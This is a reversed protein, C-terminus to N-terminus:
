VKLYQQLSEGSVKELQAVLGQVAGEVAADPDELLEAIFPLAEPLLVLYEEQLSAVLRSLLGLALLKGRVGGKRTAVLVSHHVPKWSLDSGTSLAGALLAGVAAMGAVDTVSDPLPGGIAAVAAEGAEGLAAVPGGHVDLEADACQQSLLSLLSHTSPSSADGAPGELLQDVLPQLVRELQEQKQQQESGSNHLFLLHLAQVSRVRALWVALQLASDRSSGAEGGGAAAASKRRKKKPPRVGAAAAAAGTLQALLLDLICKYYPAFVSRLRHSLAVVATLLAVTRGLGGDGGAAAAADEGAAAASQAAAVAAGLSSAAWDLLRLFLPKFRSESLKMTLAVLARAAASEVEHVGAPGLAAVGEGAAAPVDGSSSSAEMWRRRTDLAKLLLGFVGEYYVAALKTELGTVLDVVMGLLVAAPQHAVEAPAAPTAGEAAALAADSLSLGLAHEWQAALPELLLRAPVASPLAVRLRAATDAAGATSCGLVAPHVLLQVLRPLYPSLFAGLGRVLSELAALASALELAAQGTAADGAEEDDSGEQQQQQVSAAALQQCAAEAAALVAAAVTPLQSILQTGLAGVLAAVCALASARVAATGDKVAALVGPVVGVVSGPQQAGFARVATQCALLAHQRTLASPTATADLLHPIHGLLQLAAAALQAEAQKRQGVPLGELDVLDLEVKDMRDAFLQLAKRVVKESGSGGVLQVLVGLYAAADIVASLARLLDYLGATAAKIARQVKKAGGKPSTPSSASTSAGPHLQQLLLVAQQLVSACAAQVEPPAPTSAAAAAAGLLVKVQM